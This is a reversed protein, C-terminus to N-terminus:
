HHLAALKIKLAMRIARIQARMAADNKLKAKSTDTGTLASAQQETGAPPAPTSPEPQPQAVVAPASLLMLAGLLLGVRVSRGGNVPLMGSM